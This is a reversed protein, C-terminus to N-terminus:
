ILEKSLRLNENIIIDDANDTLQRVGSFCFMQVEYGGRCIQDQSPLYAFTGNTNSMCLTHQFASYARMRISIESFMEYPFPVFLVPGLAALTQRHVRCSETDEGSELLRIIEKLTFYKERSINQPPESDYEAFLKKAEKLPMIPRYPLRLEGVTLRLPVTRFEKIKRYAAIADLAALSGIEKMYSLDGTTRGNSLRPGVDGEAGNVFLTVAGTEAELRDCMVGAWDRSIESNRGCATCHAGYHVVNAIPRGDEGRLALVTMTRDYQGWPNQGLRVTDDSGYQRRNIGVDSDTEGIGLEAPLMSSVAKEAAALTRPILISDVYPRDIEGWGTTSNTSPGSHTHFAHIFVCDAPFGCVRAIGSRLEETLSNAILCLSASVLLMRSEGSRLALATVTLADNISTGVTDRTYGYLLSGLPPTIDERGVGAYLKEM